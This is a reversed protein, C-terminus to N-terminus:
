YVVIEIFLFILFTLLVPDLWSTCEFYRVAQSQESPSLVQPYLM